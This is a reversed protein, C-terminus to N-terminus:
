RSRRGVITGRFLSYTFFAYYDPRNLIFEPSDPQCLRRVLAGDDKSLEQEAGSWRMEFLATLADRIDNALPAQVSRVFTEARADTLGAERLWGLARTFHLEPRTEASFPAIGARTANLRAELAPYGPLLMQSSWALIALVGGPKVVRALEQIEPVPDRVVYGLSDASWVWDFTADGFPLANWDGQRFSVRESLGSQAVFREAVDLLAASADLGTIHGGPGVAEALLAAQLGLGCGVDLGRSGTPLCLAKIVTAVAPERLPNSV